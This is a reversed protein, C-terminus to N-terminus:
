PGTLARRQQPVRRLRGIDYGQSALLATLRKLDAQPMAPARAMIWAYDRKERGVVTQIYDPAVYMLRSDAANPWIFRMGM